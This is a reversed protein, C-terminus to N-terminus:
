PVVDDLQKLSGLQDTNMWGEVVKGGAFRYIAMGYKATVGNCTAPTGM